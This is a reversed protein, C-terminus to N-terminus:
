SNLLANIRALWLEAQSHSMIQFKYQPQKPNRTRFILTNKEREIRGGTGSKNVWQHECGLIDNMDYMEYTMTTTSVFAIKKKSSDIAFQRPLEFDTEFSNELLHAKAEAFSRNSSFHRVITRIIVAVVLGASGVLLGLTTDSTMAWTVIGPGLVLLTFDVMGVGSSLAKTTYQIKEVHM